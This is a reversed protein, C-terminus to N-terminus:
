SFLCVMLFSRKGRGEREQSVSIHLKQTFSTYRLPLLASCTNMKNVAMDCAGAAVNLLVTRAAFM